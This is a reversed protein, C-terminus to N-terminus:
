GTHTKVALLKKLISGITTKVLQQVHAIILSHNAPKEPEEMQLDNRIMERNKTSDIGQFAGAIMQKMRYRIVIHQNHPVYIKGPPYPHWPHYLRLEPHWMVHLGLLTLRTYVDWGNAHYHGAFVPQQEYGNVAMLWKKRVTLCGGYNNPNKPVCNRKLDDLTWSPQHLMEPEDYRYIYMVLKENAQHEQWVRELFDREVVVDADPIALLEARAEAIGQNFCYSSHYTTGPENGLTIIKFHPFKGIEARLEPRVERYFEVWLLEYDEPPLTQDGFFRLAHFHERFSGDVMIVSIRPLAM